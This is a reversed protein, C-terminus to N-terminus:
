AFSFCPLFLFLSPLEVLNEGICDLVVIKPETVADSLESAVQEVQSLSLLVGPGGGGMPQIM